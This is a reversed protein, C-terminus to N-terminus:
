AGYVEEESYLKVGNELLVKEAFGVDGAHLVVCADATTHSVYAYAYDIDIGHEALLRVVTSLGGPRDKLAVALVDAASITLNEKQLAEACKEPQDVILRLIGFKTTDSVSIARINIDYKELLETIEILTGVRNELLISIQKVAM